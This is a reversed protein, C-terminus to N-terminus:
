APPLPTIGSGLQVYKDEPLKCVLKCTVMTNSHSHAM